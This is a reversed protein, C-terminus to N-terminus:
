IIMKSHVFLKEIESIPILNINYKEAIYSIWDNSPRNLISFMAEANVFKDGVSSRKEFITPTIGYKELTLACSLGSMGAGMIAVEM